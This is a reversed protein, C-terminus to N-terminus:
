VLVTRLYKLDRDWDLLPSPRAEHVNLLLTAMLKRRSAIM